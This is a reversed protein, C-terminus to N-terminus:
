RPSGDNSEQAQSALTQVLRPTLVGFHRAAALVHQEHWLRRGAIIPPECELKGRRLADALQPETAGVIRAAQGTSIPYNM